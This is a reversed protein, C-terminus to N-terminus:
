NSRSGSDGRAAEGAQGAVPLKATPGPPADSARGRRTGDVRRCGLTDLSISAIRFAGPSLRLKVFSMSRGGGIAANAAGECRNMAGNM